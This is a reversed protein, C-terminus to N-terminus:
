APHNGAEGGLDFPSTVGEYALHFEMGQVAHALDHCHSMWMGPNDATLAVEWVEGPRVDFTDMWLGNAPRGNKSLVQVHHGHPHMPHTDSGRNVVRILVKQGEKVLPTPINPFGKGNVTYALRPLGDVMALTRDLVWTIEQDFEAPVPAGSGYRTIDLVPGAAPAPPTGGNLLLGPHGNVDLYVPNAPMTFTLDYRGGAALRLRDGTLVTAGPVDTGDVAALEYPTGTLGMEVPSSDTGVVRLRVPAGPRITTKVLADSPPRGDLSLTMTGYTHLALTHDGPAPGVPGVPGVPDVPDVVLLGYLGKAVAVSSHQHSHYWYTGPDTARFRYVHSGGPLVADQTVGPVGDEGSPVDYGHWHITVAQGPLENRLTVEVHEGQKVRLTPGPSQGNFSWAEFTRGSPLRLTAPEATLTFKRAAPEPRGALSAVSVGAAEADHGAHFASGSWGGTIAWSVGLMLVATGAVRWRDGTRGSLVRWALASAGAVALLLVAAAPVTVPYAILLACAIGAAAGVAALVVPLTRAPDPPSGHRWFRILSPLTVAAAALGPIAVLPLALTLKEAAFWWGASALAATTWGRLCTAAIAAALLGAAIPALNGAAGRLAAVAVGAAAAWLGAVLVLLIQDVGILQGTSM